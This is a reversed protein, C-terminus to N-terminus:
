SKILNPFVEEILKKTLYKTLPEKNVMKIILLADDPHVSELMQIFMRERKYAPMSSGPGGKVLYGFDKHKRLLTSPVSEPKNPSYPPAGAPLEFQLSNDFTGRLVDKLAAITAYKQLVAKRETRNKALDFENIIEFIEKTITHAM